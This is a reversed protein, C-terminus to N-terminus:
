VNQGGLIDEPDRTLGKEDDSNFQIRGREFGIDYDATANQAEPNGEYGDIFGREYEVEDGHPDEVTQPGSRSPHGPPPPSSGPHAFGGRAAAIKMATTVEDLRQIEEKIIRRLQSKTIKM